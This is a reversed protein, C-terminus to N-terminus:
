RDIRKLYHSLTLLPWIRNYSHYHIYFHGPLGAGTPYTMMKEPHEKWNLIYAIGKDVDSTTDDYISLLADVAWSTQVITSFSLPIYTRESDSKCSEGWGGDIQQITLLWQEAKQIAPHDTPVGVARMGTIAAWTGYIYSVGWRGYWSGDKEQHDLLWGVGAKVRPHSITLKLYNGLFELTRGTLDATSPDIITDKFNQIPLSAMLNTHIRKEFSSWGGDDNQIALLRNVGSNWSKRYEPDLLSFSSLARLAAQTDDTDPNSTNSESFGWGGPISQVFQGAGERHQVSLLYRASSEIVPDEVSVGAEQLAYSLLATDWVTSPSNQLHYGEGSKYLLSKLGQVANQILPSAHRYGLALLAYVMYFTASAYSYLTGDHEISQIIYKEAKKIASNTSFGDLPTERLKNAKHSKFLHSLDPTWRNSISFKQNGLILVPAFHARVYSSFTHFNVPLFAPLHIISLPLPFFRPWPYLRNLALMFKTSVHAKELGGHDLIYKEAKKMNEDSTNVYGSFFLATYAEITASLNGEDDEYLKWVGDQQTCLLRTVLNRILEDEDFELVRLMIIMYADTMPGSEFCYRWTGDNCQEEKIAKILRQIETQVNEKLNM